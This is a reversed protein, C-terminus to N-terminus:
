WRVLCFARTRAARLERRRVVTKVATKVLTKVATKEVVTKVATNVVTKVVQIATQERPNWHWQSDM